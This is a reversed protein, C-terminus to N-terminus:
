TSGLDAATYATMLRMAAPKRLRFATTSVLAASASGSRPFQFVSILDM